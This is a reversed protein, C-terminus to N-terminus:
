TTNDAHKKGNKGNSLDEHQAFSKCSSYFEVNTINLWKNSKPQRQRCKDTFLTQGPWDKTNQQAGEVNCQM